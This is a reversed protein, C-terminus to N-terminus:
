FIDFTIKLVFKNLFIEWRLWLFFISLITRLLKRLLINAAFHLMHFINNFIILIWIFIKLFFQILDIFHNHLKLFILYIRFFYSNIMLIIESPEFFHNYCLQLSLILVRFVRINLKISWEFILSIIKYNVHWINNYDYNLHLCRVINM